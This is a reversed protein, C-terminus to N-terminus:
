GGTVVGQSSISINLPNVSITVVIFRNQGVFIVSVAVSLTQTAGDYTLVLSNPDWSNLIAYSNQGNYILQNLQAKVANQARGIDISSAITGVYPKLARTLYYSLAFRCAIQQNFVNAPNSDNQWTTVDSLLTPLKTEPPYDLVLVGNNQLSQKTSLDVIQEIGNGLLTKNTVPTATPNGTMIGAVAAATHLGDYTLNLGSVNDTRQIGPWCYTAMIENTSRANTQATTPSEGLVSGTVFRRWKHQVPTSATAAHQAGLNRVGVSNNDAFVVWAPQGLAVNYGSAYNALSPVGNTAGSFFQLATQQLIYAPSSTIATNISATAILSAQLNIFNVVAGLIATIPVFQNVTAIPAPLPTAAIVDLYFSPLLGNGYMTAAYFGSGNLYQVLASVTAFTPSTLDLTISEGVNPSTIVLSTAKGAITSIIQYTVSNSTGTYAVTFPTGLNDATQAQGSFGDFITMAVGVQSGASVSYQILNSPTGYNTSLLDIVGVSGSSQMVASSQTNPAVNIYTVLTTGNVETSPSFMFDVFDQSPAGRMAVKLSNADTYNTPVLPVGGFGAALFVLPGTPIVGSPAVPTLQTRVYVNPIVAIQGDISITVDPM